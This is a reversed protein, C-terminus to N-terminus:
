HYMANRICDNLADFNQITGIKVREIDQGEILLYGDGLSNREDMKDKYESFLMQKQEKSLNGLALIARFQDRSGAKFHEADARQVGILVRIGLSRGMFLMNALMTKLEDAQKKEQAAIMAGYEDILLVKVQQNRKVDNAELRECFEKYFALIGSPVDEYGYFNHTDAFQAFSSKKYDCITISVNPIHRTYIGLLIALAYSKGSGTKGVVLFNPERSLREMDLSIITPLVYRFPLTYLRTYTAKRAYEMFHIKGEVAIELRAMQNNFDPISVGKNKVELIRGHAKNKDKRTSILVPYEGQANRLGARKVGQAFRRKYFGPSRLLQVLCVFGVLALSFFIMDLLLDGFLTERFLL